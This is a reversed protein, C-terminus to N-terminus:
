IDKVSFLEPSIKAMLPDEGRNSPSKIMLLVLKLLRKPEQMYLNYIQKEKEKKIKRM